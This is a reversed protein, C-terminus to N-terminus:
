RSGTGRQRSIRGNAPQAVAGPTQLRAAPEAMGVTVSGDVWGRVVDVVHGLLHLDTAVLAVPQQGLPLLRVGDLHRRM